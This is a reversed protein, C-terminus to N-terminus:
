LDFCDIIVLSKRTNELRFCDIVYNDDTIFILPFYDKREHDLLITEIRLIGVLLTVGEGTM